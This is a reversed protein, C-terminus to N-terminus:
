NPWDLAKVEVSGKDSPLAPSYNEDTLIRHKRVYRMKKVVRIKLLSILSLGFHATV